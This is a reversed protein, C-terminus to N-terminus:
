SSHYDIPRVALLFQCPQFENVRTEQAPRGHRRESTNNNKNSNTHQRGNRGHNHHHASRRMSPMPVQVAGNIPTVHEFKCKGGYQCQGTMAFQRCVEASAVIRASDTTPAVVNPTITV